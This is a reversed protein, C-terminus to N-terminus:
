IENPILQINCKYSSCSSANEPPFCRYIADFDEAYSPHVYSEYQSMIITEPVPHERLKNYHTCDLVTIDRFCCVKDCDIDKIKKLISKRTSVSINTSDFIVNKDNKLNEITRDNMLKFVIGNDKPNYVKFNLEDRIDDSSLRVTEREEHINESLKKLLEKSQVSKGSGPIGCMMIFKPKSM